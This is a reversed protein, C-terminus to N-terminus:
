DKKLSEIIRTLNKLLAIQKKKDKAECAPSGLYTKNGAISKSVGSQGLVVAGEGITLDKNVGVQGWLTVNDEIIVAGSIGVQAAFLCNKGVVTDHGVQILNDLKTGDGLVTDGSVGRDITCNAGIEVNDGVVVRGCSELRDFSGNQKKYYFADAGIVTNSHIIVNDGIISHDYITVNAHIRCNKGIRVHNGIVVGPQIVTGEGMRASDSIRKDSPEFQHYRKVLRVYDNFPQKSFILSKGEPKDVRKNIIIVSALSSLAREYYKPHDVFTIDGQQVKHIENIGTVVSDPCGDFEADLIAAIEKVTSQPTLLM